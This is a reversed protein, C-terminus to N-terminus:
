WGLRFAQLALNKGLYLVGPEKGGWDWDCSIYVKIGETTQQYTDLKMEKIQGRRLTGDKNLATPILLQQWDNTGASTRLRLVPDPSNQARFLELVASHEPIPLSGIVDGSLAGKYESGHFPGTLYKEWGPTRNSAMLLIVM